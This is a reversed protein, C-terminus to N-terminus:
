FNHYIKNKKWWRNFWIENAQNAFFFGESDEGAKSSFDDRFKQKWPRLEAKRSM